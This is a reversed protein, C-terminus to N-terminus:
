LEKNRRSNGSTKVLKALDGQDEIMSLLYCYIILKITLNSIIERPNTILNTGLEKPMMQIKQARLFRDTRTTRFIIIRRTLILQEWNHSSRSTKPLASLLLLITITIKM